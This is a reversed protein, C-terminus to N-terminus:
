ALSDHPLHRRHARFYNLPSYAFLDSLKEMYVCAYRDMQYAFFSEEAGARFIRGWNPNYFYDQQKILKAIEKDITQLELQLNTLEDQYQNTNEDISKTQLAIYRGEIESKKMMQDLIMQELSNAAQQAKIEAGLEEVVLATRWNCEKKLRLIDDYIHDGIYLIEDGKIGLATTLQKANGGQYIGRLLPETTNSLAHTLPDITLFALDDYFFRPKNATTIVYEFCDQWKKAHTLFPNIAYNLLGCTYNYDSNTLLIIKKNYALMHELGHVLFPEKIVFQDLRQSIYTKLPGAAHVKDVAHLVDFAINKYSPLETPYQDKLDVLQAFLVCFSISFATDIAIYNHDNLDVYTSRYLQKQKTYPIATTGHASLRIVGYRNLKLINGHLSDIVLGRIANTMTFQLNRLIEPYNLNTILENIVYQYVLAEFRQTQYRILTHDIDLGIYKIKKLNLTRNVFVHATM